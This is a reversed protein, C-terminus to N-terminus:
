VGWGERRDITEWLFIIVDDLAKIEKKWSSPDLKEPSHLKKSLSLLRKYCQKMEKTTEM